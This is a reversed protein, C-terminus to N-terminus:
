IFRLAASKTFHQADGDIALMGLDERTASNQKFLDM